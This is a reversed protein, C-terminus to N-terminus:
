PGFFIVIGAMAVLFALAAVLLGLIGRQWGALEDWKSSIEAFPVGTIAELLGVLAYAGPMALPIMAFLSAPVLKKQRIFYIVFGVLIAGFIGAGLKIVGRGRTGTFM